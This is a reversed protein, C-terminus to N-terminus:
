YGRVVQPVSIRPTPLAIILDEKKRQRARITVIVALPILLNLGPDASGSALSGAILSTLACARVAAVIAVDEQAVPKPVGYLGRVLIAVLTAMLVSGLVGLQSIVAIIWSSARSSGLGVGLGATDFFAQLGKYNWYARERGSASEIKNVITADFLRSLPDFFTPISLYIALAIVALLLFLGCIFLESRHIRSSTISAVIMVLVPVSLVLLGFYATSSTSLLLLVLLVIGLFFAQRSGTKRWYVYTFALGFLSVGGFASAEAYAGAIRWFGSESTQTLMAYSATRIPSLIDGAGSVKAALDLVGMCSHLWFWGFFGRKVDILTRPHRLLICLALFTMGGLLFYGSQSVNASVPALATEYVGRGTRSTAFVTTQGAFFRPFLFAGIVGYAMLACVVWAAHLRGFMTGIETWIHRRALAFLVTLMAFLTFILPSSGGLSTITGIATAGFALSAILASVISWRMVFAFALIATCVLLGNISPQM